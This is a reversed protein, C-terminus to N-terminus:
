LTPIRDENGIVQVNISILNRDKEEIQCTRRECPPLTGPLVLHHWVLRHFVLLRRPKASSNLAPSGVSLLNYGFPDSVHHSWNEYPGAGTM